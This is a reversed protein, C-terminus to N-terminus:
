VKALTLPKQYDNSESELDLDTSILSNPKRYDYYTQLPEPSYPKYEDFISRTGELPARESLNSLDESYNSLSSKSNNNNSKVVYLKMTSNPLKPVRSQSESFLDDDDDPLSLKTPQYSALANYPNSDIQNRPQQQAIPQYQRSLPEPPAPLAPLQPPQQLQPQPQQQPQQQNYYSLTSPDSYYVNNVPDYYIYSNYYPNAMSSQNVQPTYNNMIAPTNMMQQPYAYNQAPYGYNPMIQNPYPQYQPQQQQLQQQALPAGRGGIASVHRRVISETSASNFQDFSYNEVSGVRTTYKAINTKVVPAKPRM